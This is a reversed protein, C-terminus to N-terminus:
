DFSHIFSHVKTLGAGLDETLKQPVSCVELAATCCHKGTLLRCQLHGFRGNVHLYLFMAGLWLSIVKTNEQIKHIAQRGGM